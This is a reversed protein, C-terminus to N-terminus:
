DKNILFVIMKLVYTLLSLLYVGNIHRMKCGGLFQGSAGFMTCDPFSNLGIHWYLFTHRSPENSPHCTPLTRRSSCEVRATWCFLFSDGFQTWTRPIDYETMMASRLQRHGPLSSILTTTDTLYSPSIGSHVSHMLVCNSASGIPLRFGTYHSWLVVSMHARHLVPWLAPLLM